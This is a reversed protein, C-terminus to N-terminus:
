RPLRGKPRVETEDMAAALQEEDTLLATKASSLDVPGATFNIWTLRGQLGRDAFSKFLQEDRRDCRLLETFQEELKTITQPQVASDKDRVVEGTAGSFSVLRNREPPADVVKRIVLHPRVIAVPQRKQDFTPLKAAIEHEVHLFQTCSPDFDQRIVPIEGLM